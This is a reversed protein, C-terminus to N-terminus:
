RPGRRRRVPWSVPVGIALAYGICTMPHLLWRRDPNRASRHPPETVTEGDVRTFRVTADWKTHGAKTVSVVEVRVAVVRLDVAVGIGGFVAFLVGLIVFPVEDIM